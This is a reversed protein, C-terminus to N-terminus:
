KFQSAHSTAKGEPKGIETVQYLSVTGTGCAVAQCGWKRTTRSHGFALKTSM